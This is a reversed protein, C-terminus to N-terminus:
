GPKGQDEEKADPESEDNEFRYAFEPMRRMRELQHTLVSLAVDNEDRGMTTTQALYRLYEHMNASVKM